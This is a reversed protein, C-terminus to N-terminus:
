GQNIQKLKQRIDLLILKIEDVDDKLADLQKFKAKQTKYAELATIDTNIVAGQNEATRVFGDQTKKPLM